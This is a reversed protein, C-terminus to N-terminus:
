LDRLFAVLAERESAPLNRFYERAAQGEGGHWLIAEALSRARGDHLYFARGGGVREALGIGWLPPTRWECGGAEFEPRGDALGEGMDHLLLDTYPFIAQRSLEPFGPVDGTEYRPVHCGACAARFHARGRSVRPDGPARRGPVALLRMYLTVFGLKEDDIEPEGGSPHGEAAKQAATHNERPFLSSTVGMDGQFAAAVQQEVTPRGAKWGFRGLAKGGARLDPVRNPRGSIGDGDADEPDARELVRGEPIAELLGTGFVAPALRPSLLVGSAEIPGYGPRELRYAPRRLSYSTGDGYRGPMEEYAVVPVAEPPVGPVGRTQIQEGYVPHAAGDRASLRLLLGVFPEGPEPALGRGDKFHCAACSAANFLPGLGDRGAASAPAIVWNARFLSRGAFFADRRASDLNAAPFGFANESVDFVTGAGGSFREAAPGCGALLLIGLAAWDERM